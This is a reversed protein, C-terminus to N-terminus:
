PRDTPEFKPKPPGSLMSTWRSMSDVIQSRWAQSYIYNVMISMSRRVGMQSWNAGFHVNSASLSAGNGLHFNAVPDLPRGAPDKEDALYTHAIKTLPRALAQVLPENQAWGAQGLVTLLMEHLPAEEAGSLKEYEEAILTRARKDFQKEIQDATLKYGKQGLLVPKLYRRWFGPLPSLTCFNKIEPRDQKLFEVVQFILVKGLGLGALGNQTNNISYFVATDKRDQDQKPASEGLIDHISRVLGRTLAVEIFVVPADSMVRHYLAFCRRDRGLRRSMEELSTMPHVMDGNMIIEIQRYPSDLTIETLYLFGDQFWSEFLDVLDRDLVSLNVGGRRQAALLDARFTLLFNLGGPLRAFRRLLKKRPSALLDRLDGLAQDWEEPDGKASILMRAAQVIRDPTQGSYGAFRTFFLTQDARNLENYGRMFRELNEPHSADDQAAKEATKLLAEVKAPNAQVERDLDNQKKSM